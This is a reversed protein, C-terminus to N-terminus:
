LGTPAELFVVELGFKERLHEGLARLGLTETQYHGFFVVNINNDRAVSYAYHRPEGVILIDLGKEVAEPLLSIADGSVFAGKRVEKVGFDWIVLPKGIKEEFRMILTDLPLPDELEFGKGINVGHYNGFDFSYLLGVLKLAYANNGFEPHMDLPLHSVYIAIDNEILTKFRRYTHGTLPIPKGWYPGHHFIILNVKEKVAQEIVVLNFDVALGIKEIKGSNELVLGNLSDDPINHTNLLSDLYNSLTKLEM